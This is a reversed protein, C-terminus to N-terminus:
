GDKLAERMDHQALKEAHMDYDRITKYFSAYMELLSQCRALLYVAKHPPEAPDYQSLLEYANHMVQGVVKPSWDEVVKQAQDYAPRRDHLNQLLRTRLESEAMKHGM